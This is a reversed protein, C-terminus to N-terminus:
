EYTVKKFYYIDPDLIPLTESKIYFPTESLKIMASGKNTSINFPLEMDINTLSINYGPTSTTDGSKNAMRKVSVEIKNNTRLYLDFLPSLDIASAQNFYTQVDETTV